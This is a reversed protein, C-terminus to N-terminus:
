RMLGRASRMSFRCCRRSLSDVAANRAFMDFDKSRADLWWCLYWRCPIAPFRAHRCYDADRASRKDAIMLINASRVGSFFILYWEHFFFYKFILSFYALPFSYCRAYRACWFMACRVASRVEFMMLRARKAHRSFLASCRKRRCRPTLMNLAFILRRADRMMSGCARASRMNCIMASRMLPPRMAYDRSFQRFWIFIKYAFYAVSAAACWSFAAYWFFAIVFFYDAFSPTARRQFILLRADHFIPSAHFFILFYIM